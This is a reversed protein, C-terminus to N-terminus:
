SPPLTGRIPGPHARAAGTLEADKPPGFSWLGEGEHGAPGFNALRSGLAPSRFRPLYGDSLPSWSLLQVQM